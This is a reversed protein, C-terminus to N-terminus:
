SGGAPRDSRSAARQRAQQFKAVVRTEEAETELRVSSFRDIVLSHSGGPSDETTTFLARQGPRLLPNNNILTIGSGYVLDCGGGQSVTVEGSLSGKINKEVEVAFETVPLDNELESPPVDRIKRVVRGVFVNDSVGVLLTENAADFSGDVAVSNVPADPGCGKRDAERVANSEIRWGPERVQSAGGGEGGRSPETQQGRGVLVVALVGLAALIVLMASITLTRPM